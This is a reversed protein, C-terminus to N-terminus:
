STTSIFEKRQGHATPHPRGTHVQPHGAQHSNYRGPHPKTLIRTRRTHSTGLSHQKARILQNHCHTTIIEGITHPTGTNLLKMPSISFLIGLALKTAKWILKDLRNEPTKTHNIYPAQFRICLTILAERLHVLDAKKIGKNRNTM